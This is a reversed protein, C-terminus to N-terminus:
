DIWRIKKNLEKAVAEAVGNISHGLFEKWETNPNMICSNGGDTLHIIDGDYKVGFFDLFDKTMSVEFEIQNSEM